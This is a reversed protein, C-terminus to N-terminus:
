AYYVEQSLQKLYSDLKTLAQKSESQDTLEAMFNAKNDSALYNEFAKTGNALTIFTEVDVDTTKENLVSYNFNYLQAGVLSYFITKSESWFSEYDSTQAGDAFLSDIKQQLIKSQKLSIQMLLIRLDSKAVQPNQYNLDITNELLLENAKLLTKNQTNLNNVIKNLEGIKATQSTESLNYDQNFTKIADLTQKLEKSYAEILSNIENLKGEKKSFASDVTLTKLLNSQIIYQLHELKYKYYLVSNSFQLTGAFSEVNDQEPTQNYSTTINKDFQTQEQSDIVGFTTSALKSSYGSNTRAFVVLAMIIVFIALISLAIAVKPLVGKKAM